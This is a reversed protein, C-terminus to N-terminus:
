YLITSTIHFRNSGAEVGECAQIDTAAAGWDVRVNFNQKYQLEVGVGMGVMSADHESSQRPSNVVEAADVFTRLILDWDPHGYTQQPSVRFNKDWLFPTKSPDSQVPFVRPLHFRYEVTAIVSSDGAAISEPYGRVTYLGGAVDEANPFLRDHFAWQGHVSFYLENALTSAGAAFKEPEILPELFFSQSAGYQLVVPNRTADQRGLGNISAQSADTTYGILKM